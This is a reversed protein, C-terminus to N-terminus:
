REHLRAHTYAHLPSFNTAHITKNLVLDYEMGSAEALPQHRFKQAGFENPSFDSPVAVATSFIKRDSLLGVRWLNAFSSPADGSAGLIKPLALASGELVLQWGSSAM